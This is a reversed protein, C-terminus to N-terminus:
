PHGIVGYKKALYDAAQQPTRNSQKALSTAFGFMALLWVIAGIWQLADSKIVVGVGIAGFLTGYSLAFRGWFGVTSDFLRILDIKEDSM